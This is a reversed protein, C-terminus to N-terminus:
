RWVENYIIGGSVVVTSIVRFLKASTEDPIITYFGIFFCSTADVISLAGFPPM